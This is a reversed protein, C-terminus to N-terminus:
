NSIAKKLAEVIFANSAGSINEELKLIKDNIDFDLVLSYKKIKSSSKEFEIENKYVLEEDFKEGPRLGIEKIIISELKIGESIILREALKNISVSNGMEYILLDFRDDLLSQFLLNCAESMTIFYRSIKKDTITLFKGSRIQKKFLPIVSGITYPINGFRVVIYKKRDESNLSGVYLEALRKTVGMVSTPNVAKDTSVLIFKTAFYKNSLDAVIKTGLVNVRLAEYANHEMMPVHKYAAVHFIIEPQYNKFITEMRNKNCIDSVVIKYNEFGDLILEQELNYLSSEGQDVLILRSCNEKALVKSIKSGISGGAGTILITKNTIYNRIESSVTYEFNENLLYDLKM